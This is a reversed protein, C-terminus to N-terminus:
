NKYLIRDNIQEVKAIVAATALNLKQPVLKIKWSRKRVFLWFQLRRQVATSFILAHSPCQQQFKYSSNAVPFFFFPLCIVTKHVDTSNNDSEVEEVRWCQLRRNWDVLNIPFNTWKYLQQKTYAFSDQASKRTKLKIEFQLPSKM